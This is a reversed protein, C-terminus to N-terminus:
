GKFKQNPCEKLYQIIGGKLQYVNKYGQRNMELLAKECRIGGTCYMLVKKEKPIESEEVWKPFENFEKLKPDTAGEFVGIMTEYDNRTDILEVDETELVTNWEEPTLHTDDVEPPVLDTDGIAVIEERIKVFWRKFPQEDAPSDKFVIGGATEELIKKYAEIDADPGAITGNVGEAAVLTLGYLGLEKGTNYLHDRVIQVDKVPFFKYFTTVTLM